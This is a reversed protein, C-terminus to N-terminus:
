RGRRVEEPRVPWLTSNFEGSLPAHHRVWSFAADRDPFPGVYRPLPQHGTADWSASIVLMCQAADTVERAEPAARSVQVLPGWKKEVHERPFPATEPSHLLGDEGPTWIDGHCDRWQWIPEERAEPQGGPATLIALAEDAAQARRRYDAEVRSPDDGDHNPSWSLVEIARAIREDDDRAEPELTLVAPDSYSVVKGLSQAYAIERATSEGVYGGPAVVHVEDAMDIKQFHLRDLTRKLDTADTTWDYDPMDAHGFLGLSIVVNGEMTLRENEAHFEDKFRSSGCLTIVRAREQERDPRKAREAALAGEATVLQTEVDMRARREHHRVAALENQLRGITLAQEAILRDGWDGTGKPDFEALTRAHEDNRIASVLVQAEAVERGRAVFQHVIGQEAETPTYVQEAM